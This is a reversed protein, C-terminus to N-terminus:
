REDQGEEELVEYQDSKFGMRFYDTGGDVFINECKCRKFDHRYHSQIIDGCLLCKVKPAEKKDM